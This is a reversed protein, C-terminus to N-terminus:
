KKRPKLDQQEEIIGLRAKVQAMDARISKVEVLTLFLIVAGGGQIGTAADLDNVVGLILHLTNM